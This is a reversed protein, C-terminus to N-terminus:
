DLASSGPLEAVDLRILSRPDVFAVGRTRIVHTFGAARRRELIEAEGYIIYTRGATYSFGSGIDAVALKNMLSHVNAKCNSYAMRAREALTRLGITLIRSDGEHPTGARYMAEYVAQEALSHGDQVTLTLRVKPQRYGPIHRGALDPFPNAPASSKPASLQIEQLNGAPGPSEDARPGPASIEVATLVPASTDPASSNPASSIQAGTDDRKAIDPASTHLVPASTDTATLDPASTRAAGTDSSLPPSAATPDSSRSLAESIRGKNEEESRAADLHDLVPVRQSLDRTFLTGFGSMGTTGALEDLSIRELKPKPRSRSSGSM